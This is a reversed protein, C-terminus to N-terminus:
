FASTDLTLNKLSQSSSPNVIVTEYRNKHPSFFILPLIALQMKEPLEQRQTIFNHKNKKEIHDYITIMCLFAKRSKPMYMFCTHISEQHAAM